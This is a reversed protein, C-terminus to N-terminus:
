LPTNYVIRCSNRVPPLIWDIVRFELGWSVVQYFGRRASSFGLAELLLCACLGATATYPKPHKEM